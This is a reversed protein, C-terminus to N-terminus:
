LVEAALEAADGYRAEDDANETDQESRSRLLEERAKKLM